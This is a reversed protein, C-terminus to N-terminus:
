EKDGKLIEILYKPSTSLYEFEDYDIMKHSEIYEIAKEIRQYLKVSEGKVEDIMNIDHEHVQKLAENERKLQSNEEDRIQILGAKMVANDNKLQSNEQQLKDIYVVIESYTLFFPHKHPLKKLLEIYSNQEEDKQKKVNHIIFTEIPSTGKIDEDSVELKFYKDQNITITKEERM